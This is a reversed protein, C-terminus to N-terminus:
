VLWPFVLNVRLGFLNPIDEMRLVIDLVGIRFATIQGSINLVRQMKRSLPLRSQLQTGEAADHRYSKIKKQAQDGSGLFMLAM